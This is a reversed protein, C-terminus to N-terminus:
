GAFRQWFRRSNECLGATRELTHAGGKKIHTRKSRRSKPYGSRPYLPRRVGRREESRRHERLEQMDLFRRGTLSNTTRIRRFHSEPFALCALCEEIYEELDCAVTEHGKGRWREAVSPPSSSLPADTLRLSSGAYTLESIRALLM